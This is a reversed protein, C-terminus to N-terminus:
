SITDQAVRERQLRALAHLLCRATRNVKAATQPHQQYLPGNKRCERLLRTLAHKTGAMPNDDKRNM